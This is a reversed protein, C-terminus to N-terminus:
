RATHNRSSRWWHSMRALVWASCAGLSNALIDQWDGGDRGPAALQLYEILISFGIAVLLATLWHRGSRRLWFALGAYAVFHNFKDWPLQQPIASTPALSGWAVAMAWALAVLAFGKQWATM